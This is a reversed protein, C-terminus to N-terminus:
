RMFGLEPNFFKNNTASKEVQPYIDNVSKDHISNQSEIKSTTIKQHPGGPVGRLVKGGRRWSQPWM